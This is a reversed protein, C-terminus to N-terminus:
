FGMHSLFKYQGKSEWHSTMHLLDIGRFYKKPVTYYCLREPSWLFPKVFIMKPGYEDRCSTPFRRTLTKSILGLWARKHGSWARELIPKVSLVFCPKTNSLITIGRTLARCTFYKLSHLM